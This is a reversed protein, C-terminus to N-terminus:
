LEPEPTYGIHEARAGPREQRRLQRGALSDHDIRAEHLVRHLIAGLLIAGHAPEDGADPSM